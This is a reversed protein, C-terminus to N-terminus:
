IDVSSNLRCSTRTWRFGFHPAVFEQGIMQKAAAELAPLEAAGAGTFSVKRISIPQGTISFEFAEIPGDQPGARLYDVRGHLNHEIAITQM